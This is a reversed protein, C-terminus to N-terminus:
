DAVQTSRVSDADPTPHGTLIDLTEVARRMQAPSSHSYLLTTMAHSHGMLYSVTIIDVGQKLLRSAFAHRLLHIHYHVGITRSIRGSSWRLVNESTRNPVDFVFAGGRVRATLVAQAEKNLPITRSKAGKGSIQIEGDGVQMWRLCLVESKRLGTNLVFRMIDYLERILPSAHDGVRMARAADLAKGIEKETLPRVKEREPYFRVRSVPNEARTLGWARAKNVMQRLLACYRNATAKSAPRATDDATRRDRARVALRIQEVHYPTIDEINVVGQTGLWAAIFESEYFETRWGRPKNKKAWEFYRAAFEKFPLGGAKAGDKLKEALERARELALRYEDTGLSRRVRKGKIRLDIWYNASGRHKQINM